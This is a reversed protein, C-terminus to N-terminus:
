RYGYQYKIGTVNIRYTVMEKSATYYEAIEGESMNSRFAWELCSRPIHLCGGLWEAENEQDQSYHRLQSGCIDIFGTMEHMCIIHSLEHFIDSEQRPLSHRGNLVILQNKDNAITFASWWSKKKTRLNTLIDNTMGPLSSPYVVKVNLHKALSLSQMKEHDNLNLRRRYETSLREAEQKFGRRLTKNKLM